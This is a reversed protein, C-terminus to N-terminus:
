VLLSRVKPFAAKHKLNNENIEQGSLPCLYDVESTPILDFHPSNQFGIDGITRKKRNYMPWGGKYSLLGRHPDKVFEVNAGRYVDSVLRRTHDDDTPIPYRPGHAAASSNTDSGSIYALPPWTGWAYVTDSGHYAGLSQQPKPTKPLYFSPSYRYRWTPANGQRLAAQYGTPCVWVESTAFFGLANALEPEDVAMMNGEDKNNGMLVPIDIFEQNELRDFYNDAVTVNDVALLFEADATFTATMLDQWDVKQMCRFQKEDSKTGCGVVRSVNNWASHESAFDHSSDIFYRGLSTMSGSQMILGQLRNATPKQYHMYAWNDVACAGSSTGGMTVQNPDGGFKEINKHLWEIAFDVDLLGPNSGKYDKNGHNRSPMLHPSLPYGLMWNRMNISIVIIEDQSVITDGPYFEISNAGWAFSGGYVNLWVPAKKATGDSNRYREWHKKGVYINANLCDESQNEVHFVNRSVGCLGAARIADSNSHQPCHKAYKSADRVGNWPAAATPPMFRNSGGTDGAFPVGRWSYVQTTENFWGRVRGADTEVVLYPSKDGGDHGQSPASASHGTSHPSSHSM